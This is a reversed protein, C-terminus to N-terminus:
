YKTKIIYVNKHMFKDSHECGKINPKIERFFIDFFNINRWWKNRQHHGFGFIEIFYQWNKTIKDDKYIYILLFKFNVLYSRVFKM